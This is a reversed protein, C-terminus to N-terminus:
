KATGWSDGIGSGVLDRIVGNPFTKKYAEVMAVKLLSEVETAITSPCEVLIEDHVCNILKIYANDINKIYNHFISLATLIIEAATGQVPHNLAAGYWSDSPLARIKGAVTIAKLSTECSAAQELQWARLSPYLKRFKSIYEVAEETSVDVAYGKKAYHSFKKAGLGFLLGLVLAKAVQREKKTVQKIPKNNLAGATASYIDLGDRYVRLMAEDQSLEAAVRVEIQSYDACILVYGPSAVFHGRLKEDRPYNQFNPSSSSLRGTRAGCLNFRCHLRGTFPSITNILTDGYTSSLKDLKKYKALPAVVELYPYESFTDASVSLQGLPKSKTPATKPWYELVDELLNEELWNRVVNDTIRSVGLFAMLDNKAKYLEDRWETIVGKHKEVDLLMGNLEMEGLPYQAEKTIQYIKQLGFKTLGKGLKEGIYYCAVPDIAAYEIQEFNLNDVGWDSKQVYKAIPEKLVSETLSELSAALGTDDPYISHSIIKYLIMTCGINMEKVGLKRFFKYEFIANHALLRKTELFPIFLSGDVYHFDFVYCCEGDYIQLLRIHSLHPNLAAKPYLKYEEDAATETDVAFLCDKEMLSAIIPIALEDTKIYFCDINKNQFKITFSHEDM